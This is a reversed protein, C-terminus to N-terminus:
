LISGYDLNIGHYLDYIITSFLKSASDLGTVQESFSKFLLIFLGNWMPSLNPKRFKLLLSIDGIYGIQYFMNILDISLILDPDVLGESSDLGLMRCFCAKSISTKNTAVDFTILGDVQIYAASSYTKSLHVLPIFEAM